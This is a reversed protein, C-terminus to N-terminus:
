GARRRAARAHVRDVHRDLPTALDPVPERRVQPRAVEADVALLDREVRELRCEVRDDGACARPRQITRIPRALRRPGRAPALSSAACSSSRVSCRAESRSAAARRSRTEDAVAEDLTLDGTTSAAHRAGRASRVIAAQAEAFARGAHDGHGPVVVGDGVLAAVIAATTAALRTPLRRRLLPGRRERAPRRRVARGDGPVSIVIDHDTHGRGLYRLEVADGASRSRPRARRVDPRAPRHRGRAPRRGPGAGRARDDPSAGRRDARHLDRM